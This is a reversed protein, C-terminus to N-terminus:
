VKHTISTINLTFLYFNVIVVIGCRNRIVTNCYQFCYNTTSFGKIFAFNRFKYKVRTLYMNCGSFQILACIKFTLSFTVSGNGHETFNQKEVTEQDAVKVKPLNIIIGFEIRSQSIASRRGHNYFSSVYNQLYGTGRM